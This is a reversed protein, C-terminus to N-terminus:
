FIHMTNYICFLQVQQVELKPVDYPLSVYNYAFLIVLYINQKM